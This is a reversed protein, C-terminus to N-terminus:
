RRRPRCDDHVAARAPEGGVVGDDGPDGGPLGASVNLTPYDVKPLDSVPLARYAVVGFLAIGVMLLSTAIPRRIFIESINVLSRTRSFGPGSVASNVDRARLAAPRAAGTAAAGAAAAAAPRAAARGAPGDDRAIGTRPPTARRHRGDRGADLGKAVVIDEEVRQGVSVARQEVTQDNKVVFVYQGDQGTQVAQTPM